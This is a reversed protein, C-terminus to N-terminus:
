KSILKAGIGVCALSYKEKTAKTEASEIKLVIKVQSIACQTLAESMTKEVHFFEEAPVMRCKGVDSVFITYNKGNHHVSYDSIPNIRVRIDGKQAQVEAYVTGQTEFIM